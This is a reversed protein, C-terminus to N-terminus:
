RLEPLPAPNLESPTEKNLVLSICIGGGCCILSIDDGLRKSEAAFSKWPPFGFSWSGLSCAFGETAEQPSEHARERTAAEKKKKERKRSGREASQLRGHKDRKWASSRLCMASLTARRANPPSTLAATKVCKPEIFDLNGRSFRSFCPSNLWCTSSKGSDWQGGGRGGM